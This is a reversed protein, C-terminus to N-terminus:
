DMLSRKLLVALHKADDTDYTDSSVVLEVNKINPCEGLVENCLAFNFMTLHALGIKQSM